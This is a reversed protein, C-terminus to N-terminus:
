LSSQFPEIRIIAAKNVASGKPNEEAVVFRLIRYLIDKDAQRLGEAVKILPSFELRPQMSHRHAEYQHMHASLASKFLPVSATYVLLGKGVTMREIDYAKLFGQPSHRM